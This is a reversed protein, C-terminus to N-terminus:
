RIRLREATKNHTQRLRAERKPGITNEWRSKSDGSQAVNAPPSALNKPDLGLATVTAPNLQETAKLGRGQQFRQLSAQM